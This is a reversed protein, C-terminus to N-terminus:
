PIVPGGFLGGLMVSDHPNGMDSLINTKARANPCEWTYCTYDPKKSGTKRDYKYSTEYQLRMRAGCGSCFRHEECLQEWEARVTEPTIAKLKMVMEGLGPAALLYLVPCLVM